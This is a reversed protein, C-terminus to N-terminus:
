STPEFKDYEVSHADLFAEIERIQDYILHYSREASVRLPYGVLAELEACLHEHLLLTNEIAIKKYDHPTM